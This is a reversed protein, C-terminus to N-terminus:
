ILRRQKLARCFAHFVFERIFVFRYDSFRTARPIFSKVMLVVYNILHVVHRPYHLEVHNKNKLLKELNCTREM